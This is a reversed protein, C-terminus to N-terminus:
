SDSFANPDTLNEGSLSEDDDQAAEKTGDGDHRRIFHDGTVLDGFDVAQAKDEPRVRRHQKHCMKGYVCAKCYPTSRSM